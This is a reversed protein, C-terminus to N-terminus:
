SRDQEHEGGQSHAAQASAVQWLLQSLADILDKQPCPLTRSVAADSDFLDTQRYQWDRKM